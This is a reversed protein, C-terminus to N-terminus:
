RRPKTDTRSLSSPDPKNSYQVAHHCEHEEQCRDEFQGHGAELFARIDKAHRHDELFNTIVSIKLAVSFVGVASIDTYFGLMITDVRGNLLQIFSTLIMPFSIYLHEKMSFAEKPSSERGAKTRHFFRWIYYTTYIAAVAIGLAYVDVAYITRIGLYIATAFGVLNIFQIVLNRFLESIHVEKLGRIFEVNITGM